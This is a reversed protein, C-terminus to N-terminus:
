DINISILSAKTSTTIQEKLYHVSLLTTVIVRMAGLPSVLVAPANTYAIVTLLEGLILCVIGLWWTRRSKRVGIKQLVMSSGAFFSGLMAMVCGYTVTGLESDDSSQM